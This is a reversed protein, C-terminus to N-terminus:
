TRKGKHDTPRKPEAVPLTQAGLVRDLQRKLRDKIPTAAEIIERARHFELAHFKDVEVDIYIDPRIHQLKERTISKELIQLSQAAVVLASPQVGLDLESATGSVDIAVCIDADKTVLDFPLPNVLGGDVLTRGGMIVPQFLVPIAISAAVAQRLPGETMVVASRSGLDTAVVRLPIALSKFDKAVQSPFILDIVSEAKLLSTRLPFLNLFKQVPDSRASFLQRVIDIRGALTEETLARIHKASLGSAYAAGFLAGISTGAIVKPKIGLEDFVELVLIHALGRAGGGGLALAITPQRVPLHERTTVLAKRM